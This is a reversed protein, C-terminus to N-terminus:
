RCGGSEEPGKDSAADSPRTGDDRDSADPDVTGIPIGIETRVEHEPRFRENSIAWAFDDRLEDLVTRLVQLEDGVREVADVLRELLEQNERPPASPENKHM